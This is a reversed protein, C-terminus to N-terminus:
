STWLRWRRRGRRIQAQGEDVVESGLGPRGSGIWWRRRAGLCSSGSGPGDALAGSRSGQVKSRPREPCGLGGGLPCCGAEVTAGGVLAPAALTAAPRLWLQLSAGSGGSAVGFAVGHLQVVSSSSDCGCRRAAQAALGGSSLVGVDRSVGCGGGGHIKPAVAADGSPKGRRRRGRCPSLGAVDEPPPSPLHLLLSPRHPHHSPNEGSGGRLSRRL